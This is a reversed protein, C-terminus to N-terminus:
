IRGGAVVERGVLEIEGTTSMRRRELVWTDEEKMYSVSDAGSGARSHGKKGNIAPNSNMAPSFGDSAGGELGASTSSAAALYAMTITPSAPISSGDSGNQGNSSAVGGSSALSFASGGLQSTNALALGGAGFPPLYTFPSSGAQSGGSGSSQLSGNSGGWAGRRLKMLANLSLDEDDAFSSNMLQALAPSSLTQNTQTGPIALSIYSNRTSYESRETIPTLNPEQLVIRGSKSRTMGEPGRPGFYGGNVYQAENAGSAQAYFGFEQGYFGDSDNALAEANAAAIMPDDELASDYDFDDDDNAGFSNPPFNDTGQSFHGGDPLLDPHLETNYAGPADREIESVSDRRIFKGNAAAQNAAAVLADHYAALNDQTLGSPEGFNSEDAQHQQSISAQYSLANGAPNMFPPYTTDTSQSDQPVISDNEDEESTNKTPSSDTTSLNLPRPPQLDLVSRKYAEKELDFVSEDFERGEDDGPHEIIGDDFYMDDDENAESKSSEFASQDHLNVPEAAISSQPKSAGLATDMGMLGLGDVDSLPRSTEQQTTVSAAIPPPLSSRQPSEKSMAFGILQGSSDRPSTLTAASPSTPSAVASMRSSTFDFAGIEGGELQIEDESDANVGPIKEEYPGEDDLGDYYDMENDDYDDDGTGSNDGDNNQSSKKAATHEKHKEELIKEQTASGLGAMDFSFRSANSALRKPGTSQPLQDSGSLTRSRTKPPPSPSSRKTPLNQPSADPSGAEPVVPLMKSRNPKDVVPPPVLALGLDSPLNRAFPPLPPPERDPQPVNLPSSLISSNSGERPLGPQDTQGERWPQIDDGFQEKFMPSHDWDGGKPSCMRGSNGDGAKSTPRELGDEAHTRGRSKGAGTGPSVGGIDNTSYNRRQRPASFDHVATGRIRPDYDDPITPMTLTKDNALSAPEPPLGQASRRRMLLSM